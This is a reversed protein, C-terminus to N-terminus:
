LSILTNYQSKLLTEKEVSKGNVQAEVFRVGTMDTQHRAHFTLLVIAETGSKQKQKPDRKITYDISGPKHCCRYGNDVITKNLVQGGTFSGLPQMDTFQIAQPDYYLVFHVTDAATNQATLMVRVQINGNSDPATQTPNLSLIPLATAIETTPAYRALLFFAFGLYSLIVFLIPYFYKPM